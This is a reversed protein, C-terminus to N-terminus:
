NSSIRNDPRKNPKAWILHFMQFLHREMRTVHLGSRELIEGLNRNLHCGVTRRFLPDALHQIGGILRNKSLGHEMLLIQGDPKCWRGMAQLMRVPDDYGCMSLTSVITDFSHEPFDITELDAQMFTAKLGAEAAAERAKALMGGSFDVATLTVDSRYYVCNAGAGVAVELVNGRACSVLQERWERETQQRRRREYIRAQRDFKHILRKREM